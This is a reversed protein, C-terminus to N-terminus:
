TWALIYAGGQQFVIYGGHEDYNNALDPFMAHQPSNIFISDGFNASAVYHSASDIVLIGLKKIIMNAFYDLDLDFTEHISDYNRELSDIFDYYDLKSCIDELSDSYMSLEESISSIYDRVTLCKLIEFNYDEIIDVIDNKKIIDKGKIYEKVLEIVKQLNKNFNDTVNLALVDHPSYDNHYNWSICIDFIDTDSM